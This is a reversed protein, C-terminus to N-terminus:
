VSLMAQQLSVVGESTASSQRQDPHSNDGLYNCSFSACVLRLGRQITVEDKM